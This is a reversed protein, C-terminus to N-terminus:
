GNTAGVLATLLGILLYLTPFAFAYLFGGIRLDRSYGRRLLLFVLPVPVALIALLM